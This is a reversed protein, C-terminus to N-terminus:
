EKADRAIGRKSSQLFDIIMKIDPDGEFHKELKGIAEKLLLGSKFLIKYARKIKEIRDRTFGRRELGKVNIGYLEARPGAALTFPPVDLVVGSTGGIMAYPGIRVWQHVGSLGGIFAYEGVECHGSLGSYSAMIVGKGLVCDHAVHCYAMLMCDDGVVTKMKDLKTGRHVTVFERIIVRDGIIVESDEGEYKLHQPEEGIVAGDYIKCNKGIRTRGKISVRAGIKTGEGITVRGEIVTFPGVEVKEGLQVEKGILASPHIKM